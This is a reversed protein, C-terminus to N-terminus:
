TTTQTKRSDWWWRNLAFTLTFTLVAGLIWAAQYPVWSLMVLYVGFNAAKGIGNAAQMGAYQRAHGRATTPSIGDPWIWRNTVTYGLTSIILFNPVIALAENLGAIEVWFTLLLVNLALGGVAKLGWKILSVHNM